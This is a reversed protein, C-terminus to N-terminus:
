SLLINLFTAEWLVTVTAENPTEEVNLMCLITVTDENPTEEVNSGVDNRQHPVVSSVGGGTESSRVSSLLQFLERLLIVPICLFVIFLLIVFPLFQISSPTNAALISPMHFNSPSIKPVM